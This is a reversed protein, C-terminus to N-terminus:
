KGGKKEKDIYEDRIVYIDVDKNEDYLYLYRTGDEPLKEIDYDKVAIITVPNRDKIINEINYYKPTIVITYRSGWRRISVRQTDVVSVCSEEDDIIIYPKYTLYFQGDRKNVLSKIKM